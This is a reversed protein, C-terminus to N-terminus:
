KDGTKGVYLTNTTPRRGARLAKDHELGADWRRQQEDEARAGAMAKDFDQREWKRKLAIGTLKLILWLFVWIPATVIIFLILIIRVNPDTEQLTEWVGKM